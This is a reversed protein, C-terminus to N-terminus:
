KYKGGVHKFDEFFHPYSKNVADATTLTVEKKCKTSAIAVMMAIRHDNFSDVTVGGDLTKQGKVIIEDNESIINAGLATLTDVTSKIRDSEKIRLRQANIIKTTGSSLSALLAVIPGLDPCDNIDIITSKTQSLETIYGNETFVVKGKMAQIIDIIALDGQKSDHDLDKVQLRDNFTGAVLFFAGNSYDGEINYDKSEYSQNGKIFYGNKLEKVEIGFYELTSITLDIYSKSELTGDIYITSDEELLPLAFMLGSFFQSSVDGKIFYDRAKISGNVVIKDKEVIFTNDDTKFIEEYITQPRKLLSEAGTFYVEKNTLSLLPILFRITSGSENCFVEKNRLKIRKVGKVILHKPHIDFQVGISELAGITANIDESYVINNIRSEGKSLAACILARHSLSKSPPAKVTGNLTSPILTITEKNM